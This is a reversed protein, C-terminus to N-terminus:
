LLVCEFGEWGEMPDSCQWVTFSHKFVLLNHKGRIFDGRQYTIVRPHTSPLELTLIENSVKPLWSVEQCGLQLLCCSGCALLQWFGASSQLHCVRHRWVSWGPSAQNISQNIQYKICEFSTVYNIDLRQLMTIFLWSCVVCFELLVLVNDTKQM